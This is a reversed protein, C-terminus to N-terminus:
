IVNLHFLVNERKIRRVGREGFHFKERYKVGREKGSTLHKSLVQRLDRGACSEFHHYLVFSKFSLNLAQKGLQQGGGGGIRM